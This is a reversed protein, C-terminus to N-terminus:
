KISKWYDAESMGLLSLVSLQVDNLPDRFENVLKNGQMLRSVSMEQFRDVIKATTPHYALRHEPYIPIAEIINNSMSHRVTREILSQIMLAIFFLLMMAEVREVKKCLTPAVNHISKLQQFRKELRPQYKYALLAEKASLSADTSLLPFIGDTRQERKLAQRNRSWSLTYITSLITTYRTHKGPRGKGIQRTDSQQVPNIAIHYFDIVHYKNLLKDVRERIQDPSKLKATNLKGMLEGLKREVRLLLEDRQRRDRKRKETTYIWHVTYGAKHTFYSGNFCYFSEKKGGLTNPVPQRLLLRKTLTTDRLTDKFQRVEAWTQPLLTVVRGGHRVIYSLQRSTCVKCDAVYLFDPKGALKRVSCWTDIHTTDDTRNGSYTKFHIPVAGDSSLTLSFVIQKLDPRHDKSHGRAFRLGEDTVGPMQGTTKVSTSDNHIQELDLQSVQILRLVLDTMLSARDVAYLKDLARGYRDDNFLTEDLQCSWGFLRGDHLTTWAPLEYLPQRGSTINYILLLLSEAAPVKENGHAPLYQHFLTKLGLQQSVAQLLPIEGIRYRKLTQANRENSMDTM